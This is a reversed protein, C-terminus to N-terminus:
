MCNGALIVYSVVHWYCVGATNDKLCIEIKNLWSLHCCLVVPRTNCLSLNGDMQTPRGM